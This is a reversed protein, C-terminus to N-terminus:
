KYAIFLTPNVPTLIAPIKYGYIIVWRGIPIPKIEVKNFKTNLMNRLTKVSYQLTAPHNLIKDIIRSTIPFVLKEFHYFWSPVCSEVIIMKGGPKLVRHAEDIATMVNKISASCTKGILHHILMVMLVADFHNNKEPVALASGQKLIVNPPSILSTPPKDLFLDLGIIQTILEVNYDFVGGNGIDLLLTTDQIAENVHTRITNYTDLTKVKESYKDFKDRFFAINHKINEPTQGEDQTTM